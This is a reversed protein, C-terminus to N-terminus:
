IVISHLTFTFGCSAVTIGPFWCTYYQARSSIITIRDLFSIKTCFPHGPLPTIIACVYGLYMGSQQANRLQIHINNLMFGFLWLLRCEIVWGVVIWLQSRLSISSLSSFSICFQILKTAFIFSKQQKLLLSLISHFSINARPM